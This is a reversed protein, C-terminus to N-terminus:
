KSLTILREGFEALLIELSNLTGELENQDLNELQLTDRFVLMNDEALAFAGHIIDRNKALLEKYMEMSESQIKFLPYEVILIPDECDVILNSIGADENSVVLLEEGPDESIIGYDLETLYNKVTSFISM